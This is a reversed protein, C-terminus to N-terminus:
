DIHFPIQAVTPLRDFDRLPCQPGVGTITGQPLPQDATILLEAIGRRRLTM